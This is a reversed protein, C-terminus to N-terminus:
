IRNQISNIKGLIHNDKTLDYLIRYFYLAGRYYKRNELDACIIRLTDLIFPNVGVQIKKSEIINEADKRDIETNIGRSKLYELERFAQRNFDFNLSFDYFVAAIDLQNEEVYFFGFNRYARAIDENKYAFKLADVNYLFFRNYTRTKSKYIDALSLITKSSVPNIRLAKLLYEEAKAFDDNELLLTGYIYYLDFLPENFPIYALEKELGIYQYFLIEELPNLFSHYEKQVSIEEDNAKNMKNIKVDKRWNVRNSKKQNLNYSKPSRSLKNLEYRMYQIETISRNSKFDSEKHIEENEYKDGFHSMFNDLKELATKKDRNEILPIVEDLIRSVNTKKSEENNEEHYFDLSQWILGSIEKIIEYASEHNKYYDLQSVLYDRDLDPNGSLNRKIQNIIEKTM